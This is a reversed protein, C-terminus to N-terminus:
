RAEGYFNNGATVPHECEYLNSNFNKGKVGNNWVQLGIYGSTLSVLAGLTSQVMLVNYSRSFVDATFTAVAIAIIACFCFLFARSKSIREKNM